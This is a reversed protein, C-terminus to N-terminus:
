QGSGNNNPSPSHGNKGGDFARKGADAAATEGANTALWPFAHVVDVAVNTVFSKAPDNPDVRKWRETGLIWLMGMGLLVLGGIVTIVTRPPFSKKDPVEPADLLKATPLDKAEDVKATEYQQTLAEFVAEQVKQSRMLDAYKVGLLPLRRVSPYLLSDSKDGHGDGAAGADPDDRLKQLQRQLEGIRAETTRVRINNDTYIQKLGQLETQAAIIQGELQSSVTLMAKSQEPVDLAVNASAFQSFDQEAKELVQKVQALRDELFVRERHSSSTDLNALLQNLEDVYERAMAAARQPDKDTVTIKIIESKKDVNLDTRSDLKKRADERRRKGYVKQLNFKAVVDDQVTRSGLVGVFLEGSTKGGGMLGGLGALAKGAGSQGAISALMGLGSGSQSPPMLQATSEYETPIFVSILLSVALGWLLVKALWRRRDWLLQCRAYTKARAVKRDLDEDQARVPITTYQELLWEDTKPRNAM